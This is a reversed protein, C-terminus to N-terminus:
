KHTCWAEKQCGKSCYLAASCGACKKLEKDEVGCVHCGNTNEYEANHSILSGQYLMTSGTLSIDLASVDFELDMTALSTDILPPTYHHRPNSICIFLMPPQTRKQLNYLYLLLSVESRNGM